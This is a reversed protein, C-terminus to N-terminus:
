GLEGDFNSAFRELPEQTIIPCVSILVKYIYTDAYLYIDVLRYIYIYRYVQELSKSEFRCNAVGEM